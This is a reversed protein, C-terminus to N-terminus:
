FDIRIPGVEQQQEYSPRRSTHRSCQMHRVVFLCHLMDVLTLFGQNGAGLVVCAKQEAKASTQNDTICAGQTPKAGPRTATEDAFM